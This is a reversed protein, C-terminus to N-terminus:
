LIHGQLSQFPLYGILTLIIAPLKFESFSPLSLLPTATPAVLCLGALASLFLITNKLVINQYGKKLALFMALSGLLTAQIIQAFTFIEGGQDAIRGLMMEQSFAYPM